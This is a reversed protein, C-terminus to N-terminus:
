PTKVPLNCERCREHHQGAKIAFGIVVACILLFAAIEIKKKM